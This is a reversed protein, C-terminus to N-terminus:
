LDLANVLEKKILKVALRYDIQGTESHICENTMLSSLETLKDASLVEPSQGVIEFRKEQIKLIVSHSTESRLNTYIFEYQEFGDTDSSLQRVNLGYHNNWYDLAEKQRQEVSSLSQQLNAKKRALQDRKSQAKEITEDAAEIISQLKSIKEKNENSEIELRRKKDSLEVIENFAAADLREPLPVNPELDPEPEDETSTDHKQAVPM